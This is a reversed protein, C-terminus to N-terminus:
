IVLRKCFKKLYGGGYPEDRWGVAFKQLRLKHSTRPYGASTEEINITNCHWVTRRRLQNEMGDMPTTYKGVSVM